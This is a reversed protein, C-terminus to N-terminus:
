VRKHINSLCQLQQVRPTRVNEENRTSSTITMAPSHQVTTGETLQYRAYRASVPDGSDAKPVAAQSVESRTARLWAYGEARSPETLVYVITHKRTTNGGM